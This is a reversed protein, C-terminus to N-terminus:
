QEEALEVQLPIPTTLCYVAPCREQALRKIEEIKEKGATAECLVKFIVKDVTPNDSVGLSRSLDVHSEAVIKLKTLEVGEKAAITAFTAAFCSAVGYLCHIMPGPASGSGGLFSPQDAELVAKRGEIKVEARFQPGGERFLWEGEVINVKKLTSLDAKAKELTAMIKDLNVNNLMSM